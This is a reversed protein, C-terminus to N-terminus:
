LDAGAESRVTDALLLVHRRTGELSCAVQEASSASPAVYLACLQAHLGDALAPLADALSQADPKARGYLTTLAAVQAHADM